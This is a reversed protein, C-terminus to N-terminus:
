PALELNVQCKLGSPIRGDANPLVIRIGFMDSRPDVGPDVLTVAGSVSAVRTGPFALRAPTGPRVRGLFASPISIEVHLREVNEIVLVARDRAQEGPQLLRETVIGDMPSRIERIALAARAQALEARAIVLQEAASAAELAAVERETQVQDLDQASILREGALGRNRQLTREALAQRARRLRLQADASARAQSLAVQAQEMESQMRVVLDGARVRDGRDVMIEAIVGVVPSSLEIRRMPLVQCPFDPHNQALAPAAMLMAPLLWLWRSM